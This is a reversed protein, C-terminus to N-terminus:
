LALGRARLATWYDIMEKHLSAMLEMDEVKPEGGPATQNMVIHYYEWSGAMFFAELDLRQQPSAGNPMSAAALREFGEKLLLPM